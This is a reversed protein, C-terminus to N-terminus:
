SCPTLLYKSGATTNFELYGHTQVITNVRVNTAENTVCMHSRYPNEVLCKSGVESEIVVRSVVDAAGDWAASVLFAGNARLTTFSAAYQAGKPWRPFFRLVGEHSQLMLTHIGEIGGISELGAGGPGCETYGNPGITQNILSAYKSLLWSVQDNPVTRSAAPFNMDFGGSSVWGIDDNLLKITNWATEKDKSGSDLGILQAPFVAAYRAIAFGANSDWSLNSGDDMTVADAYIMTGSPSAVLPFQVLRELFSQWEVRDKEISPGWEPNPVATYELLKRLIQRAYSVDQHNNKVAPPMIPAGGGSCTEQACTYPLEYLGTTQNLKAYSIYFGAIERLYPVLKTFLYDEDLTADYYQIMPTAALGAVFRTGDDFFMIMGEFPGTASPMEVGDFGGFGRPCGYDHDWDKTPGCSMGAVCDVLNDSMLTLLGSVEGGYMDCWGGHSWDSLKARKRSIPLLSLITATYSQIVEPHNASSASWFNAEFNYDLTMEDGWDQSLRGDFARFLEHYACRHM